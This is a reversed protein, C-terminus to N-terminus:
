PSEPKPWPGYRWDHHLSYRLDYRGAFVTRPFPHEAEPNEFVRMRLVERDPDLDPRERRLQQAANVWQDFVHTLQGGSDDPLDEVRESVVDWFPKDDPRHPELVATASVWPARRRRDPHTIRGSGRFSWGPRIRGTTRDRFVGELLEGFMAEIIADDYLGADPLGTVLVVTTVQGRYTALQDKAARIRDGIQEATPCGRTFHKVECIVCGAPTIVKYDPTKPIGTEIPTPDPYCQQVYQRFLREGRNARKV